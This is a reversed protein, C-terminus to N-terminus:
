FCFQDAKERFLLNAYSESFHIQNNNQEKDQDRGGHKSADRSCFCRATPSPIVVPIGTIRNRLLFIKRSDEAGVLEGKEIDILHTRISMIVLGHAAVHVLMHKDIAREHFVRFGYLRGKGFFIKSSNVL